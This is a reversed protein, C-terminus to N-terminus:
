NIIIDQNFEKIAICVLNLNSRSVEFQYKEEKNKEKYYIILFNGYISSVNNIKIIDELLINKNERKTFFVVYDKSVSVILRENENEKKVYIIGAIIFLYSPFYWVGFIFIYTEIIKFNFKLCMSLMLLIFFSIIAYLFMKKSTGKPVKDKVIDISNENRVLM